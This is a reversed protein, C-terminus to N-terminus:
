HSNIAWFSSLQNDTGEIFEDNQYIALKQENSQYNRARLYYNTAETFEFLIRARYFYTKVRRAMHPVHLFLCKNKKCLIIALLLLSIKM